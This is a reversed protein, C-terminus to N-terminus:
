MEYLTCVCCRGPVYAATDVMRGTGWQYCMQVQEKVLKSMM